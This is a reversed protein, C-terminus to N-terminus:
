RARGAQATSTRRNAAVWEAVASVEYCVRRGLRVYVPGTGVTRAKELTRVSLRLLRAAEAPLLLPELLEDAM